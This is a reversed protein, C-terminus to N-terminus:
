CIIAGGLCITQELTPIQAYIVASQGSAVGTAPKTLHLTLTTDAKAEITTPLLEGTHRIRVMLRASQDALLSQALAPDIWHPPETTIKTRKTQLSSGVVLTNTQPQKAIVYLPKIQRKDEILSPSNDQVLKANITFGHRQGITYFWIGRHSGLVHGAHDCVSGPKEGFQEKLYAAVNIEGIFCIGTSDKKQAVPLELSDALTRVDEKNLESLPFIIKGLQQATLLNLFYTQDKHGDVGIALQLSKAQITQRVSTPLEIIRAYHGTAIATFNNNLAWDYFLGFKIIKNCLVDPNPTKGAQYERLFYGLVEQKYEARFDLTKFPINLQLAIKLADQKDQEARCGQENWCEIYVATVQHGAQLLLHAAVASDVGGSLGLAVKKPQTGTVLSTNM